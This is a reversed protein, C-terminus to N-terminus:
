KSPNNQARNLDPDVVSDFETTSTTLEPVETTTATQEVVDPKPESAEGSSCAGLVAAGVLLAAKVAVSRLKGPNSSGSELSRRM